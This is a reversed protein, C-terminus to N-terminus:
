YRKAEDVRRRRLVVAAAFAAFLLIVSGMIFTDTMATTFAENVMSLFNGSRVAPLEGAVMHAGGLTEKAADIVEAPVGASGAEVRARYLSTGFSGLIAIGLAGGLEYATESIGAAAAARNPPATAIIIDNTLTDALGVGCGILAGGAFAIMVTEEVGLAALTAYGGAAVLLGLGILWGIAVKRALAPALMAGLIAGFAIPLAWVGAQLPTKGLVLQIYQPFFYLVSVLAFVGAVNALVAVSFPLSGFLKIDILPTALRRQRIAFWTTGLLAVLLVALVRWGWGHEAAHKLGYVFVLVALILLLASLIDFRGPRPDKSEPLLMPGAVLLILMLPVNILFVAGWEFHELIAGGVIPGLGAGGAFAAAWVSVARRRQEPDTFINRILALTSPMLTAGGVGLLARAAILMEPTTSLAAAASAAGFLLSGILLLKRRGIRDGLLGMLILLGALFIGYVDVIWLLQSATPSLDESLEPVAVALVTLDISMLLVPMTLLGLAVWSRPTARPSAINQGELSM